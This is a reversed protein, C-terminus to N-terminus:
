LGMGNCIFQLLSEKLELDREVLDTGLYIYMRDKWYESSLSFQLTLFLNDIFFALIREDTEATLFGDARAQAILSSYAEASITEMRSSLQKALDSDGESTFRNYLRNMQPYRRAGVFIAEIIGEIKAKLSINSELIPGLANELLELGHNVVFLYLHNKSEFYKYLSGVSIGAADAIVNINAASYGKDAFEAAASMMVREKKEPNIRDFVEKHFKSESKM